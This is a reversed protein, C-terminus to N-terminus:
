ETNRYNRLKMFDAFTLAYYLNVQICIKEEVDRSHTQSNHGFIIEGYFKRMKKQLRKLNM